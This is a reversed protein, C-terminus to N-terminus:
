RGLMLFDVNYEFSSANFEGLSSRGTFMRNFVLEDNSSNLVQNEIYYYVNVVVSFVLFVTLVIIAIDKMVNKDLVQVDEILRNNETLGNASLCTNYRFRLVALRFKSCGM